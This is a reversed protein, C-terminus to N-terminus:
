LKVLFSIKGSNNNTDHNLNSSSTDKCLPRYPHLYQNGLDNSNRSNLLNRDNPGYYNNNPGYQNNSNDYSSQRNKNPSQYGNRIKNSPNWQNPHQNNNNQLPLYTDNFDSPFPLRANQNHTSSQFRTSNRENDPNYEPRVSLLINNTNLVQNKKTEILIM